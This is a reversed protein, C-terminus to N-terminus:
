FPLDLKVCFYIKQTNKAEGRSFVVGRLLARLRKKTHFPSKSSFDPLLLLLLIIRCLTEFRADGHYVTVL